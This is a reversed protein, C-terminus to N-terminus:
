SNYKALPFRTKIEEHIRKWVMYEAPSRFGLQKLVHGREHFRRQCSPCAAWEMVEGHSHKSALAELITRQIKEYNAPDKLHPAMSKVLPNVKPTAKFAEKDVSM